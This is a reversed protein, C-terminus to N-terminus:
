HERRFRWSRLLLLVRRREPRGVPSAPCLRQGCADARWTRRGTRGYCRLWGMQPSALAVDNHPNSLRGIESGYAENGILLAIRKEAQASAAGALTSCILALAVWLFRRM